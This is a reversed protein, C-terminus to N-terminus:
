NFKAALESIENNDNTPLRATLDGDIHDFATAGQEVYRGSLTILMPNDGNLVIVPPTTDHNGNLECGALLIAVLSLWSIRKVNLLM